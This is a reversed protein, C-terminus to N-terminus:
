DAGVDLKHSRIMQIHPSLATPPRIRVGRKAQRGRGACAPCAAYPRMCHQTELVSVALLASRNQPPARIFSM